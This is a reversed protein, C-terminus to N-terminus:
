PKDRNRRTQAMLNEVEAPTVRDAKMVQKTVEGSLVDALAARRRRHRSIRTAVKRYIALIKTTIRTRAMYETCRRAAMTGAASTVM